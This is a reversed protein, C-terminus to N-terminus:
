ELLKRNSWKRIIFFQLWFGEISFLKRYFDRPINVSIKISTWYLLKCTFKSKRKALLWLFFSSWMNSFKNEKCVKAQSCLFFSFDFEKKRPIFILTFNFKWLRVLNSRYNQSKTLPFSKKKSRESFHKDQHKFKSFIITRNPITKPGIDHRWQLNIVKKYIVYLDSHCRFWHLGHFIKILEAKEVAAENM